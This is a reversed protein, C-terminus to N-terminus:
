QRKRFVLNTEPEPHCLLTKIHPYPTETELADAFTECTLGNIYNRLRLGQATKESHSCLCYKFDLSLLTRMNKAYSEVPLAEPFFLWTTPNWNDASLLLQHRHIYLALSGKTHGPLHIIDMGPFSPIATSFKGRYPDNYFAAEDFNCPLVGGTKARTHIKSRTKENTYM